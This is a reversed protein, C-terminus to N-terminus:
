LDGQLTGYPPKGLELKSEPIGGQLHLVAAVKHRCIPNGNNWCCECHHHDLDQGDRTFRLSVTKYTNGKHPICGVYLGPEMENLDAEGREYIKIGREIDGIIHNHSELTAITVCIKGEM